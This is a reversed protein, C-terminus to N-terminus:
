FNKRLVPINMEFLDLVMNIAEYKGLSYIMILLHIKNKLSTTNLDKKNKSCNASLKRNIIDNRQCSFMNYCMKMKADTRMNKLMDAAVEYM